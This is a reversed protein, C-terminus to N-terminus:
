DATKKALKEEAASQRYYHPVLKWLDQREGAEYRAAALRGVTEAHPSWQDQPAVLAGSPLRAALRNLVPGSVAEGPQIMALWADVDLITTPRDLMPRDDNAVVEAHDIGRQRKPSAKLFRAAYVQERQADMVAWVAPTDLTCQAAIVELTDVDLVAAGTVYAMTKAVTVGVRLGTFSGPGITLAILQVDAPQWGVDTLLQQIGPILTQASRRQPDLRMTRLVQRDELAAISAATETAELALIQM